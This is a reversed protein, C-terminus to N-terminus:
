TTVSILDHEEDALAFDIIPKGVDFYHWEPPEPGPLTYIYKLATPLSTAPDPDVGVVCLDAALLFM